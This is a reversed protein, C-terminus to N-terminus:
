SKIKSANKKFWQIVHAVAKDPTMRHVKRLSLGAAKAGEQDEPNGGMKVTLNEWANSSSSGQVILVKVFINPEMQYGSLWQQKAYNEPDLRGAEVWVGRDYKVEFHLGPFLPRLAQDILGAAEAPTGAQISPTAAERLERLLRPLQSV